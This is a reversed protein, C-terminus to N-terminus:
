AGPPTPNRGGAGAELRPILERTIWTHGPALVLAEELAARAETRRDQRELAIALWIWADVHGWAPAPSVPRDNAFLALARRLEPEGKAPGGGFARPANLRTIGNLLAVRPDNPALKLAEDLQKFARPGFRMAKLAGGVGAIQGTVAGRLALAGGGGGLETARALTREADELLPRAEKGKDEAVLASARRHIAYGLDYQLAADRPAAAAAARLRVIVADVATWDSRIVARELPPRLSDLLAATGEQALSERGAGVFLFLGSVVIARRITSSERLITSSGPVTVHGAKKTFAQVRRRRELDAM